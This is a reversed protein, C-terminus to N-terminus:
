SRLVCIIAENCEKGKFDHTYSFFPYRVQISKLNHGIDYNTTIAAAAAMKSKAISGFNKQLSPGVPTYNRPIDPLDPCGWKKPWFIRFIRFFLINQFNIM